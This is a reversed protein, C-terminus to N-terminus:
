YNYTINFKLTELNKVKKFLNFDTLLITPTLETRIKSTVVYGAEM